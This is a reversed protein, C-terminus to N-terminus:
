GERVGVKDDQEVVQTDKVLLAVLGRNCDEVEEALDVLYLDMELLREVQEAEQQQQLLDFYQIGETGVEIQQVQRVVQEVLELQLPILRHQWHQQEQYFDEPVAEVELIVGM